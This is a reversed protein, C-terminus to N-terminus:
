SANCLSLRFPVLFTLLNRPPASELQPCNPTPVPAGGTMGLSPGIRRTGWENAYKAFSHTEDGDSHIFIV